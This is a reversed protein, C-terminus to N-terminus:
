IATCTLTLRCRNTQKNFLVLGNSDYIIIQIFESNISIEMSTLVSITCSNITVGPLTTNLASHYFRLDSTRSWIIHIFKEKLKGLEEPRV